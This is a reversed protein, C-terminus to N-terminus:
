FCRLDRMFTAEGLNALAWSVFIRHKINIVHKLSSTKRLNDLTKNVYKVNCRINIPTTCM